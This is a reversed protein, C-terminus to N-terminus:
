VTAMANENISREFDAEHYAQNVLALFKEQDFNGEDDKVMSIQNKLLHHLEKSIDTEIYKM